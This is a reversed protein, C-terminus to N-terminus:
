KLNDMYRLAVAVDESQSRLLAKWAAEATHAAHMAATVAEKAAEHEQEAAEKKKLLGWYQACTVVDPADLWLYPVKFFYPETTMRDPYNEGWIHLMNDIVDMKLIADAGPERAEALLSALVRKFEWVSQHNLDSEIQKMAADFLDRLITM